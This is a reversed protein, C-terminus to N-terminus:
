HLPNYAYAQEKAVKRTHAVVKKTENIQKGMAMRKEQPTMSQEARINNILTEAMAVHCACVAEGAIHMRRIRRILRHKILLRRRM